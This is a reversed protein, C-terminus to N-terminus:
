RQLRGRGRRGRGLHAVAALVGARAVAAPREPLPQSPPPPLPGEEDPYDAPALPAGPVVSRADVGPLFSNAVFQLFVDRKYHGHAIPHLLVELPYEFHRPFSLAFSINLFM